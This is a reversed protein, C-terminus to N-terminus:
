RWGEMWSTLQLTAKAIHKEVRAREKDLRKEIRNRFEGAPMPFTPAAQEAQHTGAPEKAMAPLAVASLALALCLTLNRFM